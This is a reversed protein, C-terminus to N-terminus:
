YHHPLIYEKDKLEAHERIAKDRRSIYYSLKDSKEKDYLLDWSFVSADISDCLDELQEIGNM